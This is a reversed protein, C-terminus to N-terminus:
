LEVLSISDVVILNTKGIYDTHFKQGEFKIGFWIALEKSNTVLYQHMLVQLNWSGISYVHHAINLRDKELHFM